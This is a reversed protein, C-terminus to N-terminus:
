QVVFSTFYIDEIKAKPANATLVSQVEKLAADRAKEKGAVTALEAFPMSAFLTLLNNKIAPRHTTFATISDEDRAMAEVTLQLFRISDETQFSVILPQDLSTYIPPDLSAVEVRPDEAVAVAEVEEEPAANGALGPMFKSAVITTTLQSVSVLVFLGLGILALRVIGGKKEGGADAANETEQADQEAM